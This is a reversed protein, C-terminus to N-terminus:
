QTHLRFTGIQAEWTGRHGTYLEAMSGCQHVKTVLSDLQILLPLAPVTYDPQNLAAVLALNM